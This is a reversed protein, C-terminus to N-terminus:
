DKTKSKWKSEIEQYPTCKADKFFKVFDNVLDKSGSIFFDDEHTITFIWDLNKDAIHINTITDVNEKLFNELEATEIIGSPIENEFSPEPFFIIENIKKNNLFNVLNKIADHLEIEDIVYEEEFKKKFQIYFWSVQSDLGKKKLIEEIKSKTLEQMNDSYIWSM